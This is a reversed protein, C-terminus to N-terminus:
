EDEDEEEVGIMKWYHRPLFASDIVFQGIKYNQTLLVTYNDDDIRSNAVHLRALGIDREHKTQSFTIVTDVTGIKSFDESVNGETILRVNMGQRHSQSCTAIGINREVGIGRVERYIRGLDHRYNRSDVRMMDIYDILLLDPIFGHSVELSDLYAEIQNVTLKGTPFEKILVKDFKVGWKDVKVGLKKRIQPDDLTLTPTVQQSDIEILRGKRDKEFSAQWIEEAERKAIAFLAQFYRQAVREESLELTIHVIKLRHLIGMKGLHILWWSKGRKPLAIFLHLGKRIPGASKRDFEPIGTPFNDYSFDLFNFSRAKDSLFVGPDFINITDKLAERFIEEVQEVTGEGQLVSAAEMLKSKLQQQRTFQHLKSMAYKSNVEVDFLRHLFVSYVKAKRNDDGHIIDDFLDAVHEGPVEGYADIHTYVKTAIDKYLGEFLDLDVTNRIIKGNAEDFCLLHIINEQLSVSLRDDMVM